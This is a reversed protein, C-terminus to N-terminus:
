DKKNKKLQKATKSRCIQNCVYLTSKLGGFQVHKKKKQIKGSNQSRKKIVKKMKKHKSEFLTSYLHLVKEDNLEPYKLSFNKLFEKLKKGKCKYYLYICCYQGCLSKYDGQICRKNYTFSSANETLFKIFQSKVPRRGFSDFYEGCGRKPLYFAVWHTGKKYSPDTNAIILAPKVIKKPLYDCPFVGKFKKRTCKNTSLVKVLDITNM